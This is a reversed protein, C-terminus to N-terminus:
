PTELRVVMDALNSDGNWIRSDTSTEVRKILPILKKLASTEECFRKLEFISSSFNSKYITQKELLTAEGRELIDANDVLCSM